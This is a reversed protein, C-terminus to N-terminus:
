SYLLIANREILGNWTLIENNSNNYIWWRGVLYIIFSSVGISSYGIIGGEGLFLFLFIEFHMWFDQIRIRSFDEIVLKDGAEQKVRRSWIICIPFLHM